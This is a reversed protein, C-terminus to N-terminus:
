NNKPNPASLLCSGFVLLQWVSRNVANQEFHRVFNVSFSQDITLNFSFLLILCCSNVGLGVTLSLMTRNSSGNESNGGDLTQTYSRKEM